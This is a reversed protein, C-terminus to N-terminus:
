CRNFALKTEGKNSPKQYAIPYLKFGECEGDIDSEQCFDFMDAVKQQYPEKLKSVEGIDQLFMFHNPIDGVGMPAEYSRGMDHFLVFIHENVDTEEARMLKQLKLERRADCHVSFTNLEKGNRVVAINVNRFFYCILYCEFEGAWEGLTGMRKVYQRITEKDKSDALKNEMFKKFDKNQMVEKKTSSIMEKRLKIHDYRANRFFDHECISHFLCNGDRDVDHPQYIRGDVEISMIAQKINNVATLNDHGRKNYM